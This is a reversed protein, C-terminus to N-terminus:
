GSQLHVGSLLVPVSPPPPLQWFFAAPLIVQDFLLLGLKSLFFLKEESISHKKITYSDFDGIFIKEGSLQSVLQNAMQQM